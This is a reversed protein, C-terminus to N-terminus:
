KKMRKRALDGNGENELKREEAKKERGGMDGEETHETGRRRKRKSNNGKEM